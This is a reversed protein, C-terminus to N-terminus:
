RRAAAELFGRRQALVLAVISKADRLEGSDILGLAEDLPVTVPELDEDEELKQGVSTLGTAVFAHMLENTMGPTTFYNGLPTISAARYGTEEELERGACVGPDERPNLTGAPLELLSAGVAFRRNRIFVVRPGQGSGLGAGSGQGAELIPVICVAGPHRIMERDVVKGSRGAFSVRVLDFKKGKHLVVPEGTPMM